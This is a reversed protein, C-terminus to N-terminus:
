TSTSRSMWPSSVMREQRQKAVSEIHKPSAGTKRLYGLLKDTEDQKENVTRRVPLMAIVSALADVLDKFPTLPFGAIETKLETMHDRLFLKGSSLVPGLRNRIRWDKDIRTSQSIPQLPLRKGRLRADRIIADQFISQMGNAEGGMVKLHFADEIAYMKEILDETSCRAAWAELVFIRGMWDPAIVVIASKARIKRLENAKKGSAPDVYAYKHQLENLPIEIM